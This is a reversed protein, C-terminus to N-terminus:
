SVSASILKDLEGSADLAHLDDCGGISQNNIFVQPVSRRNGITHKAMEDRAAEDGDVKIQEYSINKSNLLALARQCFPCTDWTYIKVSANQTM